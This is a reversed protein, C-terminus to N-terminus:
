RTIAQTLHELGIAATLMHAAKIARTAEVAASKSRLAGALTRLEEGLASGMKTQQGTPNTPAPGPTGPSLSPMATLKTGGAFPNGAGGGMSPGSSSMGSLTGAAAYKYATSLTSNLDEYTVTAPDATRLAAAASKLLSGIETKPATPAGSDSAVKESVPSAVSALVEDALKFIDFQRSM